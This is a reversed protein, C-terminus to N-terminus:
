LDGRAWPNVLWSRTERDLIGVRSDNTLDGEDRLTQLTLGIGGLSTEAIRRRRDHDPTLVRSPGVSSPAVSYIAYRDDGSPHPADDLEVFPPGVVDTVIRDAVDVRISHTERTV